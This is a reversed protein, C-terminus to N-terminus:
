KYIAISGWIKGICRQTSKQINADKFYENKNLLNLVRTCLQMFKLARQVRSYKNWFTARHFFAFIHIDIRNLQLARVPELVKNFERKQDLYPM